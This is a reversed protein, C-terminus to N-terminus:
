SAKLRKVYAIQNWQGIQYGHWEKGQYDKFWFDTRIGGWNHRSRRYGTVKYQLSGPWNTVRFRRPYEDKASDQVLYLVYKGSESMAKKDNEACCSYCFTHGESDYGYGTTMENHPSPEHGCDLITKM